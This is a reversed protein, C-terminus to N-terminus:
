RLWLTWKLMDANAHPCRRDIDFARTKTQVRLRKPNDIHLFFGPRHTSKLGHARLKAEEPSLEEADEKKTESDSTKKPALDDKKTTLTTTTTTVKTDQAPTGNAITPPEPIPISTVKLGTLSDALADVSHSRVSTAETPEPTAPVSPSTSAQVSQAM